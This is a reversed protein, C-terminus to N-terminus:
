PYGQQYLVSCHLYIQIGIEAFVTAVVFRQEILDTGGINGAAPM